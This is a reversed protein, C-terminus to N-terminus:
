ECGGFSLTMSSRLATTRDISDVRSPPPPPRRRTTFSRRDSAKLSFPDSPQAMHHLQEPFFFPVFIEGSVAFNPHLAPM